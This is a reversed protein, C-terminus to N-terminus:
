TNEDGLGIALHLGQAAASVARVLVGTYTPFSLPIRLFDNVKMGASIAIAAVQATDVAREGVIHCGLIQYTNRDTIVKCFGAKHGDIITRAVSDFRAITTLVDHSERAKVESLGVQAYEPNTFSGIPSVENWFPESPGQVANTAAIFGGQLAQPVLMQGGIVDGAAFIQPATTQLYENVKVFGRENLEVGAASLDMGSTNAVWGVAIVALAAEASGRSGDNSFNMRIGTETKEFSEISGFDEHVEIGAARFQTAVEASVSEDETPLIRPGAQFLQIRTGFANFISAVQAGTAGAGIVLMSQPVAKLGWADSHTCTLEFGPIPLRRSVGGTCLIIKNAQLRLGSATEMTNPSTFRAIGVREHVTIGLADFDKRRYSHAQADGVVERVRTLLRSYDLVPESVVIGYESLQRVDRMLRAAHALTRVPIPGDNAAMGGFDGSTVLTTQAGLEAARLAAKLGAPGAGAILISTM